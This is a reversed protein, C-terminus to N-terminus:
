TRKRPIALVIISILLAGIVYAAWPIRFGEAEDTAAQPRPPRVPPEIVEVCEIGLFQACGECFGETCSAQTLDIREVITGNMRVTLTRASEEIPIRVYLTMSELLEFNKDRFSYTSRQERLLSGKDDRIEFYFSQGIEPGPRSPTGEVISMSTIDVTGNLYVAGQVVLVDATAIPLVVLAVILIIWTKM